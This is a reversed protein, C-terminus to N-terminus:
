KKPAEAIMPAPALLDSYPVVPGLDQLRVDQGPVVQVVTSFAGVNGVCLQAEGLGYPMWTVNHANFTSGNLQILNASALDVTLYEGNALIYWAVSQGPTPTGSTVNAADNWALRLERGPPATFTSTIPLIENTGLNITQALTPTSMIKGPMIAGNITINGTGSTLAIVEDAAIAINGNQLLVTTNVSRNDRLGFVNTMANFELQGVDVLAGPFTSRYSFDLVSNTPATVLTTITQITPNELSSITKLVISADDPNSSTVAIQSGSNYYVEAGTLVNHDPAPNVTLSYTYESQTTISSTQIAAADVFLTSFLGADLNVAAIHSEADTQSLILGLRQTAPANLTMTNTSIGGALATGIGLFLPNTNNRNTIALGGPNTFDLIGSPGFSLTSVGLNPGVTGGGAGAAAYLSRDPTSNTLNPLLSM